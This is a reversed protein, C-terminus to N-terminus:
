GSIKEGHKYVEKITIREDATFLILDAERGPELRGRDALGMLDAPTRTAHRFIEGLSLLGAQYLHNLCHPLIQASGALIRPDEATCLRGNEQLIVSGGIHTEYRGPKLGSLSVADSVLFFREGKARFFVKLVADPLHFGDAIIGATLRDDALQDWIFNPHRPMVPPSGNGLHTSMVAGADAAARIQESNAMTHGISVVVGADTAKRIFAPAEAWEPSLTIVRILGEAKDQLRQFAEWDPPVIFRPPHAGRAGPEPSLFPGELHLGPIARYAYDSDRRAAAFAEAMEELAEFSNTVLTPFFTTVGRKGLAEATKEIATVTLPLTNFDLGSFGNIQLDILGPAVYLPAEGEAAAGRDPAATRVATILGDKIQIEATEGTDPLRGRLTWERM